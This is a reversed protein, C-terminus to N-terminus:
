IIYQKPESCVIYWIITTCCSQIVPLNCAWNALQPTSLSLIPNSVEIENITAQGVIHFAWWLARTTTTLKGHRQDSWVSMCAIWTVSAVEIVYSALMKDRNIWFQKKSAYKLMLERVLSICVSLSYIYNRKTAWKDATISSPHFASGFVSGSKVGTAGKVLM